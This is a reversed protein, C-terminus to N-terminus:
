MTWNQSGFSATFAGPDSAVVKIVKANGVASPALSGVIVVVGPRPAGTVRQSLGEPSPRTGKTEGLTM